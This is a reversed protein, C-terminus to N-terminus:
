EHSAGPAFPIEINDAVVNVTRATEGNDKLYSDENLRGSVVVQVGKLLTKGFFDLSKEKFCVVNIWMTEKREGYGKDVAMSFKVFKEGRVCDKGLRGSLVVSNISM